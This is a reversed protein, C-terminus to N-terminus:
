HWAFSHTSSPPSLPTTQGDAGQVVIVNWYLRRDEDDPYWAAPVECATDRTWLRHEEDRGLTWVRVEYWEAEDLLGVSTWQLVVPTVQGSFLAGDRPLLLAPPSFPLGPVPTPTPTPQPVDVVLPTSQANVIVLEQGVSILDSDELGNGQLLAEVSTGYQEAILSLVEGEEVVHILPLPTITPVFATPTPKREAVARTVTSTLTPVFFGPRESDGRFPSLWWLTALSVLVAFAASLRFSASVYRFRSAQKALWDWSKQL